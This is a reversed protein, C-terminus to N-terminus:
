NKRITTAPIGTDNTTSEILKNNYFFHGYDLLYKCTKKNVRYEQRITDIDQFSLYLYYTKTIDEEKPTDRGIYVFSCRGGVDAMFDEVINYNEDYLKVSDEHIYGFAGVVSQWNNPSREYRLSFNQRKEGDDYDGFEDPCSSCGWFSLIAIWYAILQIKEM